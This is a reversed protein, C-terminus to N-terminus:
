FKNKQYIRVYDVEMQDETYNPDISGGLSGGMAINLLIYQDNFYPWNGPTKLKPQYTFYYNDDIFFDIKEASWEMGYVHFNQTVNTVNVQKLITNDGHTDPTHLACQIMEFDEFLQEMIDIEGCSPWGVTELNSGLTWIAPWSGKASPLKARVEVKGYTFSVKSNLRASTYDQTTGSSTYKEKKAIIKLTGESVFANDLRDTYHQLENNYWSGNNPAITEMFWKSSDVKLNNQNFEDSWILSYSNEIVEKKSKNVSTNCSILLSLILLTIIKKM